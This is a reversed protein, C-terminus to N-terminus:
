LKLRMHQLADAEKHIEFSKLIRFVGRIVFLSHKFRIEFDMGPEFMYGM